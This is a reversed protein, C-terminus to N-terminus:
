WRGWGGGGGGGGGGWKQNGSWERKQGQGEGGGGGGHKIKLKASEEGMDLLLMRRRRAAETIKAFIGNSELEAPVLSEIVNQKTVYVTDNILEILEATTQVGFSSLNLAKGYYKQYYFALHDLHIGTRDPDSCDKSFAHALLHCEFRLALLAYDEFQFEKSLPVSSGLDLVDEVGFVEVADFDLPEEEEESEVEPAAKEEKKEEKKEEEKKGEAEAKAKKEAEMKAKKEAAVKAAAKARKAQEKKAIAQKYENAKSKWKGSETAWAANKTKFWASPVIDEVRTTLKKELVWNKVYTAAEKEKAWSYKVSDFESDEPVTFKTFSTALAYATLDSTPHNFFRVSKEEATLAVKPAATEAPEDEAPEEEAESMVVEKIPEEEPEAPAPKGEAAAKKVAIAHQQKKMAAERKLKTNEINVKQQKAAKKKNKEVEKSKKRLAWERKEAMYTAKHEKDAADQKAQLSKAQVIRKFSSPPESVMVDAVTKFLPGKFKAVAADRDAKVLNGKVEMIVFNRPQM